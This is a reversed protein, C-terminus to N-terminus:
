VVVRSPERARSVSRIATSGTSCLSAATSLMGKYASAQLRMFACLWLKGKAAALLVKGLSIEMSALLRSHFKAKEM